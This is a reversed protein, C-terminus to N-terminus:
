PQTVGGSVGSMTKTITLLCHMNKLGNSIYKIKEKSNM